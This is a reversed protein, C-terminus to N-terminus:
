ELVSLNRIIKQKAIREPNTWSGVFTAGRRLSNRLTATSTRLRRAEEEGGNSAEQGAQPTATACCQLISEKLRQLRFGQEQNRPHLSPKQRM